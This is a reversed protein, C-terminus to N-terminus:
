RRKILSKERETMDRATIARFIGRGKNVGVVFLYRGADTIGYVLYRNELTKRIYPKNVCAEEVEDPVVNHRLVHEVNASDWDIGSLDYGDQWRHSTELIARYEQKTLVCNDRPVWHFLGEGYEPLPSKNANRRTM